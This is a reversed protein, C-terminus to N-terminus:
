ALGVIVDHDHHLTQAPECQPFDNGRMGIQPGFDIQEIGLKGRAGLFPFRSEPVQAIRGRFKELESGIHGFLRPRGHEANFVGFLQGIEERRIQVDLRRLFLRDELFEVNFFPQGDHLGTNRRLELDRLNLLLQLLVHLRLKGLCLPASIQAFLHFGDLALKAFLGARGILDLSQPLSELLCFRRFFHECLGIPLQPPEINDWRGARLIGHDHAIDFRDCLQRPRFQALIIEIEVLGLLDEIAIM